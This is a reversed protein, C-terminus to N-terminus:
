SDAVFQRVEPVSPIRGLLDLSVRRLFEADGARESPRIQNKEWFTNLRRDIKNALAQVAAEEQAVALAPGPIVLPGATRLAHLRAEIEDHIEQTQAFVPSAVLLLGFFPMMRRSSM